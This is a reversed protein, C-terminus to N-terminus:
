KFGVVHLLTGNNSLYAIFPLLAIMLFSIVPDHYKFPISKYFKSTAPENGNLLM